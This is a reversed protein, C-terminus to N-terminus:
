DVYVGNDPNLADIFMKANNDMAKDYQQQNMGTTAVQIAADASINDPDLEKAKRAAALAEKYKGERQLKRYLKLQEEVQENTKRIALDRKNEDWKLNGAQNQLTEQALITRYQQMRKELPAKLLAIKPADFPATRLEEVCDGLVDLAQTKRGAKFLEAA